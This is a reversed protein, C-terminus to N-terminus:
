PPRKTRVRTNLLGSGEPAPKAQSVAAIAGKLRFAFIFVAPTNGEPLSSMM